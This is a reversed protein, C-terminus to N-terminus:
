PSLDASGACDMGKLGTLRTLPVVITGDLGTLVAEATDCDLFEIELNGWKTSGGAPFGFSGEAIEYMELKLVQNFLLQKQSSESILWLREGSGTHGYYFIVLAEKHRNIDFGHGPSAPDYFLGSFGSDSRSWAIDVSSNPCTLNGFAAISGDSKYYIYKLADKDMLYLEVTGHDGCYQAGTTIDEHFTASVETESELTWVGSCYISPYEILYSNDSATFKITWSIAPGIGPDQYGMGEWVCDLRETFGAIAVKSYAFSLMLAFYLITRSKM